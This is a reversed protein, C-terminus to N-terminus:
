PVVIRPVATAEPAVVIVGGPAVVVVTEPQDTHEGTSKRYLTLVHSHISLVISSDLRVGTINTVADSFLDSCPSSLLNSRFTKRSM